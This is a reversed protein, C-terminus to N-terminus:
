DIHRPRYNSAHCLRKAMNSTKQRLSKWPLLRSITLQPNVGFLSPVPTWLHKQWQTPPSNSSLRRIPYDSLQLSPSNCLRLTPFVSSTPKAARNASAEKSAAFAITTAGSNAAFHSKQNQFQREHPSPSTWGRGWKQANHFCLYFNTAHHLEIFCVM